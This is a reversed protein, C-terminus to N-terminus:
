RKESTTEKLAAVADDLLHLSAQYRAYRDRALTTWQDDAEEKSAMLLFFLAAEFWSIPKFIDVALRQRDLLLADDEKDDYYARLFATLEDPDSRDRFLKGIDYALYHSGALEFDVFILDDDSRRIVNSPKLDGHGFKVDPNGLNKEVTKRLRKADSTLEALSLSFLRQTVDSSAGDLAADVSRWLPCFDTAPVKLTHLDALRQAVRHSDCFLANEDLTEGDVYAALVADPCRAFVKPGLGADGAAEDWFGRESAPVRSKSVESFIKVAFRAEAQQIELVENCFNNGGGLVRRFEWDRDDFGGLKLLQSVLPRAKASSPVVSEGPVVFVWAACCCLTSSRM